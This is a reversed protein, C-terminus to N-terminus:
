LHKCCSCNVIYKHWGTALIFLKAHKVWMHSSTVQLLCRHNQLCPFWRIIEVLTPVIELWKNNKKQTTVSAPIKLLCTINELGLCTNHQGPPNTFLVKTKNGRWTADKTQQTTRPQAQIINTLKSNM